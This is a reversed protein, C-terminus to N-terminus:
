RQWPAADDKSSARDRLGRLARSIIQHVNATSLDLLRAIDATSLDGAFRLALIQRERDDLDCLWSAFNAMGTAETHLDTREAYSDLLAPHEDVSVADRHRARRYHDISINRAIALIWTRESSRTADYRDWSTIVREFTESTLDEAVVAPFSYSFYAFVHRVHARYVCRLEERADANV